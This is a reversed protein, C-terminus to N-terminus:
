PLSPVTASLLWIDVACGAAIDSVNELMVPTEITIQLDISAGFDFNNQSKNTATVNQDSVAAKLDYDISEGLAHATLSTGVKTLLITTAGTCASATKVPMGQFPYIKGPEISDIVINQEVDAAKAANLVGNVQWCGNASACGNAGNAIAVVSYKKWTGVGELTGGGAADLHNHQMNTLSAVTPTVITPSQSMVAENGTGTKTGSKVAKSGDGFVPQDATLTAAATVDGSGGGGPPVVTIQARTVWAVFIVVAAISLLYCKM